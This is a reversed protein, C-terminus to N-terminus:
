IEPTNRWLGIVTKGFMKLFRRFRAPDSKRRSGRQLSRLASLLKKEEVGNATVIPLMDM